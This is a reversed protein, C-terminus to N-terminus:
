LSVGKCLSDIEKGITLAIKRPKPNMKYEAWAEAIMECPSTSGYESLNNAIYNRGRGWIDLITPNNIVYVGGVEGIIGFHYDLIHGFEHYITAWSEECGQPKYKLEVEHTRDMKHLQNNLVIGNIGEISYDFMAKGYDKTSATIKKKRLFNKTNKDILPQINPDDLTTEHYKAMFEAIKTRKIEFAKNYHEKFTWIGQLKDSSGIRANMDAVAKVLNQTFDIPFDDFGKCSIGFQKEIYEACQKSTKLTPILLETKYKEIKSVVKKSFGLTILFDSITADKSVHIVHGHKGFIIKEDANKSSTKVPEFRPTKGDPCLAAVQTDTLGDM